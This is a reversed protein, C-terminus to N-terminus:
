PSYLCSSPSFPFKHRFVQSTPVLSLTCRVTIRLFSSTGAGGGQLSAMKGEVEAVGQQSSWGGCRCVTAWPRTLLAQWVHISTSQHHNCLGSTLQRPDLSSPPKNFTPGRFAEWLDLATSSSPRLFCQPWPFLCIESHVDVGSTWPSMLSQPHRQTVKPVGRPKTFSRDISSPIMLCKEQISGSKTISTPVCTSLPHTDGPATTQAKSRLQPPM